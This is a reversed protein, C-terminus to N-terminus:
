RRAPDLDPDDAGRRRGPAPRRHNSTRVQAHLRCPSRRRADARGRDSRRPPHRDAACSQFLEGRSTRLGPETELDSIITGEVPALEIGAPTSFELGDYLLWSGFVTTITLVNPGQRVAEIPFEVSLRSRRARELKGAISAEGGGALLRRTQDHGNFTFKLEPPTRPHSDVLSLRARPGRWIWMRRLFSQSSLHVLRASLMTRATVHPRLYFSHTTVAITPQTAFDSRPHRDGKDEDQSLSV